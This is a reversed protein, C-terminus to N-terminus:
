NKTSGAAVWDRLAVGINAPKQKILENLLDPTIGNSSPLVRHANEPSLSLVEVPVPEPRQRRLMRWFILFIIGAGIVAAWRSSAEIWGQWRNETQIAEVQAPIREISQFPM